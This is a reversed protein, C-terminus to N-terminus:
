LYDFQRVQQPGRRRQRNSRRTYRKGKWAIATAGSEDSNVLTAGISSWDFGPYERLSKYYRYRSTSSAEEANKIFTELLNAIRELSAAQQSQLFIFQEIQEENM